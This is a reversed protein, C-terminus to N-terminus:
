TIAKTRIGSAWDKLVHEACLIAHGIKRTTVCNSASTIGTLKVDRVLSIIVYIASSMLKEKKLEKRECNAMNRFNLIYIWDDPSFHKGSNDVNTFYVIEHKIHSAEPFPM